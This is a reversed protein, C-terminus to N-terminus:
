QVADPNDFENGSVPPEPKQPQRAHNKLISKVESINQSPPVPAMTDMTPAREIDSGEGARYVHKSKYGILELSKNGFYFAIMMLFATKIFDFNDVIFTNEKVESPMGLSAITMALASVMLTLALSGRVTGTPLGLTENIHPNESPVDIAGEPTHRKTERIEAWDENTLGLNINYFYIAWAYYATLIGFWLLLIGLATLNYLDDGPDKIFQIIIHVIAGLIILELLGMLGIFLKNLLQKDRISKKIRDPLDM